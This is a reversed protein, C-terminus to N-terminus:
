DNQVVTARFHCKGSVPNNWGDISVHAGRKNDGNNRWLSWEWHGATGFLSDGNNAILPSGGGGQFTGATQDSVVGAPNVGSPLDSGTVTGVGFFPQSDDFSLLRTRMSYQPPGFCGLLEVVGMTPVNVVVPRPDLFGVADVTFTRTYQKTKTAALADSPSALSILALGTAGALATFLFGPKAKM